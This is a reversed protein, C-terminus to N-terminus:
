VSRTMRRGGALGAALAGALLLAWSSPEPVATPEAVALVKFGTYAKQIFGIGGVPASTLENNFTIQLTQSATSPPAISGFLAWDVSGGSQDLATGPTLALTSLTLTDADQVQVGAAVNTMGTNSLFYNGWESIELGGLRYGADIVLTFQLSASTGVPTGASFATFATPQFYFTDLSGAMYGPGYLGTQAGDYTVNFHDGNVTILAAQTLNTSALLALTILISHFRTM